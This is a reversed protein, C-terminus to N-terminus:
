ETAANVLAEDLALSGMGHEDLIDEYVGEEILDQMAMQLADTLEARDKLVGIGTYVPNFGQPNEPDEIMEFYEGDGATAVTYAAVPADVVYVQARGARVATQSDQAVPLTQVDIAGDGNAVCEDSLNTLLEAQLTSKQTSASLGCIDTLTEIGEPNGKEVVMAFGAHIEEIFNLTEQRELSDNMGEMIIDHHDSQMAPILTDFPQHRTEVSIDLKESLALAIDVDFGVLEDSDNYEVFPPYPVGMAIRLAGRDTVESPILAAADENVDTSFATTPVMPLTAESSGGDTTEASDSPDASSGGSCATLALSGAALAVLTLSIRNKQM